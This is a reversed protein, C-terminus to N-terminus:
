HSEGLQWYQMGLTFLRGTVRSAFQQARAHLTVHGISQTATQIIGATPNAEMLKAMSVICDGSMVSDADPVVMYRYDKGWRRCFDAVNGAKRHTRRARLRYYVQVQPQQSHQALATRLEEWAAREARAIAPDYSDSLVFVDFTAGHGTSAVSECTARLGAFVTAVDENCIPMIIATRAGASLEHERVSRASLAHRDGRLMVWFGMLGTLFGTVVWASLLAFLAIQGYGLWVNDYQPQVDAFLVSALATTLATLVAFTWRRRQAASQWPQVPQADAAATRQAQAHGTLRLLLATGLSNWFGRWPVPVM